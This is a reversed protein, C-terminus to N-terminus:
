WRMILNVSARGHGSDTEDTSRLPWGYYIASSFHDGIETLLGTGLSSLKQIGHEGVVHDKNVARGYDFFAVPALKRLWNKNVKTKEIKNQAKEKENAKVIDYEYQVSAIIGGDAVVESEEYGRVTYLGGFSTMEAPVLRASPRIYTFSGLLRHVRNADLFQRHAASFTLIVFHRDAGTRAGPANPDAANFFRRQGSGGISELRNFIISSSSTDSTRHIDFGTGMLDITVDSGLEDPFLSPTFKSKDRRLTGLVDFFWGETQYANYRLTTGYSSGNGLFDIGQAAAVDFESRAGFVNLRLRPTFIPFDYSAFASYNDEIEKEPKAQVVGTFKDDFGLLNTNIVGIRPAWQRDDTGANDLQIFYHWPNTEYVDYKLTLTNPEAGAAVTAYVRRDPNLNLLNIYDDLQKKDTVEGAWVPSWGRLNSLRLRGKEAEVGNVDRYTVRVDSVKAELVYVPLVDDKLKGDVFANGSVYVYVGAYHHSQYVSLIYQTLGQISHTSVERPQGPSLIVDRLVSLDFVATPPAEKLPKGSTNYVEPMNRFLKQVPILTNGIIRVEKVSLRPTTDPPLPVQSVAPKTEVRAEAPKEELPTVEPQTQVAPPQTVAAFCIVLGSTLCILCVVFLARNKMKM